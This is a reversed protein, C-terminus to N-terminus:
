NATVGIGKIAKTIRTNVLNFLYAFVISFAFTLMIFVGSNLKIVQESVVSLVSMVFGHILFVEYSIKGLFRTAANGIQVRYTFLLVVSLIAIGLVIRLLYEGFFYVNKFKLYAIGAILAVAISLGGCLFSHKKITTKICDLKKRDALLFGYMFGLAEVNWSFGLSSGIGTLYGM